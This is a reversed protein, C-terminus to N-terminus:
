SPPGPTTFTTSIWDDYNQNPCGPGNAASYQAYRSEFMYLTNTKLVWGPNPFSANFNSTYAQGCDGTQSISYSMMQLAWGGM